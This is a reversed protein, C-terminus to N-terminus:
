VTFIADQLLPQGAAAPLRAPADSLRELTVPLLHGTLLSRVQLPYSAVPEAPPM